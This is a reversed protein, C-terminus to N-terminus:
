DRRLADLRKQLDAEESSMPGGGGAASTPAVPSSTLGEAVAVRSNAVPENALPNVTPASALQM